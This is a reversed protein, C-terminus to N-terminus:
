VAPWNISSWTNAGRGDHDNKHRGFNNKNNLSHSLYSLVAVVFVRKTVFTDLSSNPNMVTFFTTTKMQKGQPHIVSISATIINTCTTM